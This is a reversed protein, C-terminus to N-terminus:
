LEVDIDTSNSVYTLTNIVLKKHLKLSQELSYDPQLRTKVEGMVPAKTFVLLKNLKKQM